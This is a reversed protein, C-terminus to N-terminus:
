NLAKQDLNLAEQDLRRRCAGMVFVCVAALGASGPEPITSLTITFPDIQRSYFFRVPPGFLDFPDVPDDGEALVLFDDLPIESGLTIEVDLPLANESAELTYLFRNKDTGPVNTRSRSFRRDGVGTSGSGSSTFGPTPTGVSSLGGSRGTTDQFQPITLFRSRTPLAGRTVYDWGFLFTVGNKIVADPTPSVLTPPTRNIASAELGGITFRITEPPDLDPFLGPSETAEWNGTSFTVAEEVTDFRRVVDDFLGDELVSSFDIVEGSPAVLQSIDGRGGVDLESVRFEVGQNPAGTEVISLSFRTSGDAPTSLLLITAAATLRSTLVGLCRVCSRNRYM